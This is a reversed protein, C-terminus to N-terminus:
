LNSALPFFIFSNSLFFLGGTPNLGRFGMPPSKLGLKLMWRAGAPVFGLRGGCLWDLLSLLLQAPDFWLADRVQPVELLKSEGM